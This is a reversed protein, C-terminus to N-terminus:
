FNLLVGLQHTQELSMFGLSLVNKLLYCVAGTICSRVEYGLVWILVLGATLAPSAGLGAEIPLPCLIGEEPSLGWLIEQQM